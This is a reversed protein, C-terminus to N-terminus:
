SIKFYFISLSNITFEHLPCEMLNFYAIYNEVKFKHDKDM